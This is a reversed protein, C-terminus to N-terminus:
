TGNKIHIPMSLQVSSAAIVAHMVATTASANKKERRFRRV